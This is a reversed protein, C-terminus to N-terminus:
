MRPSPNGSALDGHGNAGSIFGGDREAKRAEVAGLAETLVMIIWDPDNPDIDDDGVISVSIQL